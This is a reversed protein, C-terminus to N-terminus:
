APTIVTLLEDTLRRHLPEPLDHGWGPITVLRADPIARAVARGCAIPVLPDAKGHLVVTPASIRRSHPLLSGAGTLAALQRIIGAPHYSREYSARAVELHEEYPRPFGPSGIVMTARAGQHLISEPDSPDTPGTTMARIAAPRPPPLFPQLTSSHVIGLSRIREPHEAAVIQAIMGGMSEGILHVRDLDLADFLGVTDDAMDALTYPAPSPLGLWHRAMRAPDLMPARVGDLITSLGIDRNDFRIVRYGPDALRRCFTDPWRVSQAGFGMILVIPPADPDGFQQWALEIEGVKAVGSLPETIDITM